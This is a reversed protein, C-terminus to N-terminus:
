VRAHMLRTVASKRLGDQRDSLYLENIREPGFDEAHGFGLTVLAASLSAPDFFAKWPEGNGAAKASILAVVKRERPTLLSPPVAYDFVVASGPALSAIFRLTSLTSDGEIYMTVGLWSFFAPEDPRLGAAVLEEALSSHEFDVPVFTLWAPIDMSAARLCDRKWQQTEPLDVEFIRSGERGLHRFAYTDLGAGLIVYQRVGRRESAAWEDEALRSRVIGSTRLAKYLPTEYQALNDRLSKERDAGLIRLALPDEFVLPADLLQHAARLTALRLATPKPPAAARAVANAKLIWRIVEPTIGTIEQARLEQELMFKLKGALARDNGTMAMALRMWRAGLDRAQPSDPALGREMAERIELVLPKWRENLSLDVTDKHLRLAALEDKTFHREYLGMMELVPLWDDLDTNVGSAIRDRLLRLRDLLAQACHIQAVLDNMQRAIIDVPSAGPERLIARIDTLSFGSHKLAQIKHLRIVDEQKYLRYGSASRISPTLLGISDYHHLTRVTLGTRKALEGVKMLM